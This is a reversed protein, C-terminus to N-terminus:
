KLGRIGYRMRQTTSDYNTVVQAEPKLFLIASIFQKIGLEGPYYYNFKAYLKKSNEFEGFKQKSLWIGLLSINYKYPDVKIKNITM